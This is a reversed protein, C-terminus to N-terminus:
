LGLAQVVPAEWARIFDTDFKALDAVGDPSLATVRYRVAVKTGEPTESCDVTIWRQQYDPSNVLYEARRKEPDHRLVTWTERRGERELFFVSGEELSLEGPYVPDPDWGPVWDREAIPDFLAFVQDVPKPVVFQHRAETRANQTANEMPAEEKEAIVTGPVLLVLLLCALSCPNSYPSPM